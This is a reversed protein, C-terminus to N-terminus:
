RTAIADALLGRYSGIYDHASHRQHVAVSAARGVARREDPPLSLVRDLAAILAGMDRAGFLWGNVGDEILEPVGFVNTSLVPVGLVMCELMTRPLSEVDSASLLVDSLAYWELINPTIPEFTIREAMRSESVLQHVADSYECPYDGVMILRAEPHLAAVAVFAEVICAQSKREELMGMVLVVTAENPINHARRVAGRDFGHSFSAMSAIDVGYPVVIRHTSDAYRAFMASTARAEFILTHAAGLASEMRRRVSAPLGIAGFNLGLWDSLEFSEHIAWVFPMDARVCADGSSWPGLTNLMVVNCGSTLIFIARERVHDEYRELTTPSPNELIIVRIGQSELDSRLIGDVASVVTCHDLTPALERLLETLYLQGGGLTLSHTFVLLRSGSRDGAGASSKVFASLASRTRAQLSAVYAEDIHEDRPMTRIHRFPVAVATGDLTRATVGIALGTSPGPPVLARYEFGTVPGLRGGSHLEVDRRIVRLRAFGLLRGDVSVDLRSVPRHGVTAWGKVVLLDGDIEAGDRPEDIHGEFGEGTVTYVRNGIVSSRRSRSTAIVKVRLDGLPWHTLDVTAIWGCSLAVGPEHLNERVDPRAGGLTARVTTRDNLVIEVEAVTRNGVLAWGDFAVAERPVTLGEPRDFAGRPPETDRAASRAAMLTLVRRRLRRAGPLMRVITRVRSSIREM